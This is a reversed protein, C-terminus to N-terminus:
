RYGAAKFLQVVNNDADGTMLKTYPITTQVRTESSDRALTKTRGSESRSPYRGSLTAYRSTGCSPSSVYASSFAVGEEFISSYFPFRASPQVTKRNPSNPTGTPRNAWGTYFPLDDPQFIIVNPPQAHGFSWTLARLVALSEFVTRM